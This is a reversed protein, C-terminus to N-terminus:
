SCLHLITGDMLWVSGWSHMLNWPAWVRLLFSCSLRWFLMVSAMMEWVAFIWKLNMWFNLSVSITSGSNLSGIEAWIHCVFNSGCEFGKILSIGSAGNLACGDWVTLWLDPEILSKTWVRLAGEDSLIMFLAILSADWSDILLMLDLRFDRCFEGILWAFYVAVTTSGLSICSEFCDPMEM